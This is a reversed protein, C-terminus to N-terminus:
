LYYIYSEKRLGAFDTFLSSVILAVVRVLRVLIYM